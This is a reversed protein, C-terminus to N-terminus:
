TPKEDEPAAREWMEIDEEVDSRLHISLANLLRAAGAVVHRNQAEPSGARPSQEFHTEATRLEEHIKKAYELKKESM